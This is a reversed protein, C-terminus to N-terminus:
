AGAALGVGLDGRAADQEVAGVQQRQRGGLHARHAALLDREDLLLRHGREIRDQRDAQLDGLDHAAVLLDRALLRPGARDLQEVQDANGVACRRM